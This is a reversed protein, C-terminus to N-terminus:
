LTCIFGIFGLGAMDPWIRGHPVEGIQGYRGLLFIWREFNFGMLFYLGSIPTWYILNFSTFHEICCLFFCVRIIFTHM